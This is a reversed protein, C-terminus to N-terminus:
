HDVWRLLDDPTDVDDLSRLEPDIARLAAEEIWRVRLGEDLLLGAAKRRGAALRRAAAATAAPGYVALLPEPLGNVRFAVADVDESIGAILLDLVDGRLNPLDGAVVLLYTAGAHLYTAGAAAIGALPGSGAETDEVFRVRAAWREPVPLPAAGPAIAVLLDGVRPGLVDLQRELISAGDKSVLPKARGGLRTARGGALICAALNV